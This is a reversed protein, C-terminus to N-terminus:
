LVPESEGTLAAEAITLAAAEVLRGDASVADGEALLVVDGPVVDTAPIRQGVGDRVVLSTAAAMRQLAAVAEEARAEQVYGLVANAALIVAIVIADFPVSEADELVWTTLSIVIAGLLLLVLPDAFQALLKRWAPVPPPADLRNAGVEGLRASAEEATLGLSLDTGVRAAVEAADAM